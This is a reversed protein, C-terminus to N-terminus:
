RISQLVPYTSVLVITCTAGVTVPLVTPFVCVVVVVVAAVFIVSICIVGCDFVDSRSGCKGVLHYVTVTFFVHVLSQSLHLPIVKAREVTFACCHTITIM